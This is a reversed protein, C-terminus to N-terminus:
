IDILIQFSIRVTALKNTEMDLYVLLCWTGIILLMLYVGISVWFAKSFIFKIIKVIAM